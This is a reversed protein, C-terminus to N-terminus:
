RRVGTIQALSGCLRTVSAHHLHRLCGLNSSSPPLSHGKELRLKTAQQGLSLLDMDEDSIDDSNAVEEDDGAGGSGEQCSIARVDLVAQDWTKQKAVLQRLVAQHCASSAELFLLEEALRLLLLTRAGEGASSRVHDALSSELKLLLHGEGAFLWGPSSRLLLLFFLLAPSSLWRPGAEGRFKAKVDEAVTADDLGETSADVFLRSLGLRLSAEVREAHLAESRALPPLLELTLLGVMALLASESVATAWGHPDGDASAGILDACARVLMPLDQLDDVQILLQAARAGRLCATSLALLQVTLVYKTDKKAKWFNCAIVEPEMATPTAMLPFMVKIM